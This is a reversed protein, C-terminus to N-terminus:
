EGGMWRKFQRMSTNKEEVIGTKANTTRYWVTKTAEDVSVVERTLYGGQRAVTYKKKEIPWYKM